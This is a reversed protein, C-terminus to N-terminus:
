QLNFDRFNTKLIYRKSSLNLFLDFSMISNLSLLKPHSILHLIKNKRFYNFYYLSKLPNLLEISFTEQNSIQKRKSQIYNGSSTGDGIRKWSKNKSFFRYFLSNILRQFINMAFNNMAFEIFFGSEKKETNSDEFSYILEHSEDLISYDFSYTDGFSYAGKLVSFDYKIHYKKFIPVLPHFPQSYLGGARFGLYEPVFNMPYLDRLFTDSFAVIKEIDDGELNSLAFRKHNSCDWTNTDPDYIADLWHPHFHHFILHGQSALDSLQKKIKNLDNLAQHYETSKENLRLIYTTDVFFIAKVAYKNLVTCIKETPTILCKEVSGSVKGLFLEYDFTVLLQKEKM